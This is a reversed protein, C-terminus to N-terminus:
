AKVRRIRFNLTKLLQIKALLVLHGLSTQGPRRVLSVVKLKNATKALQVKLERRTAIADV